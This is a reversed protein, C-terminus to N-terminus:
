SCTAKSTSPRIPTKVDSHKDQYIMQRHDGGKDGDKEWGVIEHRNGYIRESYDNRVRVDMDKQSHIYVQEKDKTDDFRLENYGKGGKTSNTKFGSVKPDEKHKSDLGDHLYPRFSIMTTFAALSSRSIPTM